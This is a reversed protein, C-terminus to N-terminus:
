LKRVKGIHRRCVPCNKSEEENIRQACRYCTACHGCPVFFCNREDDYCIVCIKGDYLDESSSSSSSGGNYKGTELDGEECTGYTFAVAEKALLRSRETATVAETADTENCNELLKTILALIMFFLLLITVYVIFREAMTLAVQWEMDDDQTTILISNNSDSLPLGPSM